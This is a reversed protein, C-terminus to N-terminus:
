KAWKSASNNILRIKTVIFGMLKPATAHEIEEEVGLYFLFSDSPRAQDQLEHLSRGSIAAKVKRKQQKTAEDKGHVEENRRRWLDVM